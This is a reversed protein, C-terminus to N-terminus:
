KSKDPNQVSSAGSHPRHPPTNPIYDGESSNLYKINFDCLYQTIFCYVKNTLYLPAVHKSANLHGGHKYFYSIFTLQTDDFHDNMSHSRM